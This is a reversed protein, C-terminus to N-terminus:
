KCKLTILSIEPSCGIRMPIGVFGLGRNVCLVQSEDEYIGGYENYLYKSPSWSFGLLNIEVQMAHTHGSLTLDVNTVDLVEEGWHVPNHTLLIKFRTDNLDQYAQKLNGYRPFPFEGWNEVGIVVITDSNNCILKHENNLLTWGCSKEFSKLKLLNDSKLSDSDWKYYDGYDHNGLVSYVGYKSNIKQLVNSHAITESSLSNVLDGTFCVVDPNLSNIKRVVKAVFKSNDGHSGLHFDSIQVIRLGDFSKPLKDVNLEYEYVKPNRATFIAGYLMIFLIITSLFVGIIKFINKVIRKNRFVLGLFVGTISLLFYSLRVFLSVLFVFIFWMLFLLGNGQYDFLPFLVATLTLFTIGSSLVFYLNVLYKCKLTKIDGIIYFDLLISVIIIVVLLFITGM